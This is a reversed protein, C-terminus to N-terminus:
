RVTDPLQRVGNASFVAVVAPGQMFRILARAAADDAAHKGVAASVTMPSQFPAIVPGVTKLATNAIIESLPYIWIEYEGPGLQVEGRLRSSDKIQTAIGLASLINRVTPLAAGAPAYKVSAAGLLTAKVGGPTSVDLGSASGRLGFAVPIQAIDVAGPAIKDQALLEQNVDPLLFAVDFDQGAMIQPLLKGRTAGYEIVLPRGVAKAAELRVAEMPQQIAATAFVRLEGPKADALSQAEAM